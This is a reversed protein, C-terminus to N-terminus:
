FNLKLGATIGFRRAEPNDLYNGRWNFDVRLIRLNGLGINEIGVGYEFYLQDTPAVYNISSLNIDKSRSLINGWATRVFGVERLNMKKLIPVRNFFFGNFHHDLVFTTYTDTVFEYYDLQSFTGPIQGYTQNGPIVNLLSLPVAQFTKGGELNINSKGFSGILIPQIYMFQLKDYNFDSTFVGKFGKVFRLTITPANNSHEYRDIGFQSFKAGPRAVISLTLHSDIVNDLEIGNKNYNINFLSKDASFITQYAGDLRVTFNKWPDISGYLTVRSIHSLKNNVEGQNLISSSGFTRNMIKDNDMMQVGLQEIDRKTGIGLQFRNLKNFMYRAEAGYKFQNDRFGYATYGEVRWLDNPTFFTRAGMRVRVGEIENFGFTSYLDGIDISNYVNIYGSGIIKILNVIRKFRPVKKLSDLTEYIGEEQKSLSDHRAMKWYEDSRTYAGEAQADYSRDIYFDEKKPRSFDFDKYTSTRHAFMGKAGSKKSVLSMDLLIYDKKPYFISDNKVEYELSVYIDKVFNVDIDKTSHMTVEKVAYTKMGIYVEGIFTYEGQRKPSYKIRYCDVGDINITDSLTYEYVSFGDKAVPSVFNKDFFNLRNDYVDFKRYLGKATQSVIENDDFGSSKNAILDRREKETPKNKGYV